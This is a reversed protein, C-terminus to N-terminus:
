AGLDTRIFYVGNKFDILDGSLNISNDDSQLKVEDASAVHAVTIMLAATVSFKLSKHM